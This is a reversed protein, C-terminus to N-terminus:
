HGGRPPPHERRTRHRRNKHRRTIQRKHRRISHFTKSKRKSRSGKSKRNKRGGSLKNYRRKRDNLDKDLRKVCDRLDEELMQRIDTFQADSLKKGIGILDPPIGNVSFYGAAFDFMQTTHNPELLRRVQQFFPGERPKVEGLTGMSPFRPIGDDGAIMIDKLETYENLMWALRLLNPIVTEDKPDDTVIFQHQLAMRFMEYPEGFDDMYNEKTIPCNANLFDLFRAIGNGPRTPAGVPQNGIDSYLNRCLSPNDLPFGFSKRQLFVSFGKTIDRCLDTKLDLDSFDNSVVFSTADSSFFTTKERLPGELYTWMNPYKSFNARARSEGQTTISSIHDAQGLLWDATANKVPAHILVKTQPALVGGVIENEKVFNCGYIDHLHNGLYEMFYEYRLGDEDNSICFTIQDGYLQALKIMCGIDDVDGEKSYVKRESIRRVITGLIAPDTFVIYFRSTNATNANAAM